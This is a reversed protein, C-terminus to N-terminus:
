FLSLSLALFHPLVEKLALVATFTTDFSLTRFVEEKIGSPLLTWGAATNGTQERLSKGLLINAFTARVREGALFEVHADLQGQLWM